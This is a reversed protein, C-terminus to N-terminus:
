NKLGARRSAMGEEEWDKKICTSNYIYILTKKMICVENINQCTIIYIACKKAAKKDKTHCEM